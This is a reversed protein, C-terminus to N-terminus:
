RAYSSGESVNIKVLLAEVESAKFLVRRGVKHCPLYGRKVIRHLSSPSIRIIECVENRTLLNSRVNNTKQTAIKRVDAQLAEIQDILNGLDVQTILMQQQM